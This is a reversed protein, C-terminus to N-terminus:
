HADEHKDELTHQTMPARTSAKKPELHARSVESPADSAMFLVFSFFIFIVAAIVVWPWWRSATGGMPAPRSVGEKRKYAYYGGQAAFATAALLLPTSIYGNLNKWLFWEPIFGVGMVAAAYVGGLIWSVGVVGRNQAVAAVAFTAAYVAAPIAFALAYLFGPQAEPFAETFGSNVFISWVLQPLDLAVSLLGTIVFAGVIAGGFALRAVYREGRTPPLAFAFEESGEAADGGGCTVGAFMALIVGFALVFGPHFFILLVWGLVLYAALFGLVIGGHALWERWLLGRLTRRRVDAETRQTDYTSDM